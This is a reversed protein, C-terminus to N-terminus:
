LEKQKDDWWERIAKTASAGELEEMAAVFEEVPRGGGVDFLDSVFGVDDNLRQPLWEVYYPTTRRKARREGREFRTQELAVAITRPDTWSARYTVTGSANLIYTMNPLRGFGHHLTGELDDVLMPRKFGLRDVMARANAIKQDLSRHGPFRDSPHAERTYVFVFTADHESSM